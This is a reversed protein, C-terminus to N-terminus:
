QCSYPRRVSNYSCWDSISSLPKGCHVCTHPANSATAAAPTTCRSRSTAARFTSTASRGWHGRGGREADLECVKTKDNVYVTCSSSSSSSSCTVTDAAFHPSHRRPLCCWLPQFPSNPSLRAVNPRKSHEHNCIM